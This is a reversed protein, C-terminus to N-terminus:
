DIGLVAQVSTVAAGRAWDEFSSSGTSVALSCQQTEHPGLRLRDDLTRAFAPSAVVAEADEGALVVHETQLGGALNAVVHALARAADDVLRAGASGAAASTSLTWDEHGAGLRSRVTARDLYSSACGRHGLGCPPGSGDVPAHALLHGNDILAEPVRGDRVVALGQGAGVTVLGFTRRERGVGFWLQERALAVVDNSVTVPLGLRQGLLGGLDVERWGLFTGELVTRAEGVVGGVSLGVGHCAPLDAAVREVLDALVEVCAAVPVVGDLAAPLAAVATAVVSGLMDSGVAYAERDTLKVGVVHRAAAVPSLMRRPRGGTSAEDSESVLGAGVLSRAVRSMSAESAGLEAGLAVRSSPGDVLLRRLTTRARPDLTHVPIELSSTGRPRAVAPM